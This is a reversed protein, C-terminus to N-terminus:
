QDDLEYDFQVSQVVTTNKLKYKNEQVGKAKLAM